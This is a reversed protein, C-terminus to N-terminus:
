TNQTLLSSTSCANFSFLLLVRVMLLMMPTSQHLRVLLFELSSRSLEIVVDIVAILFHSLVSRHHMDQAESM